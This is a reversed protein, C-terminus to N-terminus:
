GVGERVKTLSHFFITKRIETKTHRIGFDLSTSLEGIEILAISLSRELDDNCTRWSPAHLAYPSLTRRFRFINVFRRNRWIGGILAPKEHQSPRRRRGM